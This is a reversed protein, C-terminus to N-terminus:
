KAVSKVCMGPQAVETPEQQGLGLEKIHDVLGMLGKPKDGLRQCSGEVM